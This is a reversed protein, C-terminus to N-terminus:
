RWEFYKLRNNKEATAPNGSSPKRSKWVWCLYTTHSFNFFHQVVHVTETFINVFYAASTAVNRVLIIALLAHIRKRWIRTRAQERLLHHVGRTAFRSLRCCKLTSSNLPTCGAATAPGLWTRAHVATGHSFVLLTIWDFFDLNASIQARLIIFTSFLM